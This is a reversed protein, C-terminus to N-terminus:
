HLHAARSASIQPREGCVVVLRSGLSHLLWVDNVISSFNEHSVAESGLMIVFTKGPPANICRVSHLVGEGLATKRETVM